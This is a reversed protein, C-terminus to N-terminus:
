HYVSEAGLEVALEVGGLSEFQDAHVRLGFGLEKARHLYRTSRELNLAHGEIFVDAARALGAEKAAPLGEECLVSVWGDPDERFEEPVMHAGLFTPFVEMGTLASAAQICRLSKLEDEVTLGYGSKAECAVTGHALMRQFHDVVKLTLQEESAARVARVSSLIGGGREAIEIYSVGKSRWDFEEARTTAFAPHTHGDILGPVLMVGGLDRRQAKSVRQELEAFPGVEQIVGGAVLVAADQIPTWSELEALTPLVHGEGGGDASPDMTHLTHIGHLLVAKPDNM